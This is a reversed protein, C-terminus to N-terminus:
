HSGNKCQRYLRLHKFIVADAGEPTNLIEIGAEDLLCLMQESNILNECM